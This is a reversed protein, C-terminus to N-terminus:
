GLWTITCEKGDFDSCFGRTAHHTKSRDVHEQKTTRNTAYTLDHMKPNQFLRSSGHTELKYCMGPSTKTMLKQRCPTSGKVWFGPWTCTLYDMKPNQFFLAVFPVLGLEVTFLHATRNPHNWGSCTVTCTLLLQESKYQFETSAEPPM